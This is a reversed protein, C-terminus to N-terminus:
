KLTFKQPAPILLFAIAYIINTLVNVYQMLVIIVNTIESKGFLSVQFAWLYVILFLFYIIFGICLLFKPNRFLNRDDHTIMFNIKNVSLIVILFFYFFRFYPALEKFGGFILNETIWFLTTFVLLVYFGNKKQRLFGWVHFQWAILSWEILAYINLVSLNSTHFGQILIFNVIETIFGIGLLLLFPQYNKDIRRWRVLGAIIPLLISQSLLFALISKM